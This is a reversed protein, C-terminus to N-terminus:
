DKNIVTWGKPIAYNDFIEPLASPKYFTGKPAVNQVWITSVSSNWEVFDVDISQLKTCNGFLARLSQAGFSTIAPLKVETIGTCGFFTQNYAHVDLKTAPLLPITTLATCGMFLTRMAQYPCDERWNVMSMINGSARIKGSLYFQSFPTSQNLNETSNWFQVYDGASSLMIQTDGVYPQWAKKEDVRFFITKHPTYLRVTSGPQEATLTLPIVLPDTEGGVPACAKVTLHSTNQKSHLFLTDIGASVHCTNLETLIHCCKDEAM